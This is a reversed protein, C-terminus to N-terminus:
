LVEARSYLRRFDGHLREAEIVAARREAPTSDLNRYLQEVHLRAADYASWAADLDAQEPRLRVIEASM